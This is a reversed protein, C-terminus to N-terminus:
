KAVKHVRYYFYARAYQPIFEIGRVNARTAIVQHLSALFLAPADELLLDQFRSYLKKRVEHNPEKQAQSLISDVRYNEYWSWNHGRPPFGMSTFVPYVLTDPDTSRPTSYYIFMDASTEPKSRAARGASVTVADLKLEVGLEAFNSQLIEGIVRQWDLGVYMYTLKFGGDPYGAKAMLKKAREMDREYYQVSPDFAWIEEVFPGKVRVAQGRLAVKVIADYDVAYSLAQRVLKNSLGKRQTHFHVYTPKLSPLIEIRVNPDAQLKPIDDGSIREALDIDGGQLLMRQTAAERVERLILRDIHPHDWGGWYDDFKVLVTQNGREWFELKFPGTGVVNKHFYAKAWDGDKQYKKVATPSVIQGGYIVAQMALFPAFPFKLVFTVTYEDEVIVKDITLFSSVPGRDIAFLRDFTLKVAEANFSTGDHFKVGKRLYFTYKLGDKSIKWRTALVPEIEGKSNFRVLREYTNQHVVSSGLTTAIAPDLTPYDFRSGITFTVGGTEGQAWGGQTTLLCAVFVAVLISSITVRKINVKM